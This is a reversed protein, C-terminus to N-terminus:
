QYFFAFLAGTGSGELCTAPTHSQPVLRWAYQTGRDALFLPLTKERERSRSVPSLRVQSTAFQSRTRQRNKSANGNFRLRWFRRLGPGHSLAARITQFM